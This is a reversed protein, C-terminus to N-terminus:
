RDHSLTLLMAAALVLGVGAGELPILREGLLVLALMITFAPELTSLLSAVTPGIRAMGALFTGLPLITGFVVMALLIVVNTASLNFALTDTIWGALSFSVAAGATIWALSVRAGVKRTLRDSSIVYAAYFVSSGLVM